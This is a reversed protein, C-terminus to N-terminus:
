DAKVKERMFQLLETPSQKSLIDRFQSRYNQVLSIGEIVVDYVRWDAGKKILRYDLPIQRGDATIINSKVEVQGERLTNEAGFEIKESTYALVRDAYTKELLSGFLSSFEKQQAPTFAKWDKGLTRRSLEDYDFVRNIIERIAAIQDGRAMAKFAPDRLKVLIKQVEVEVTQTATAALAPSAAAWCFVCLLLIGAVKRGMSVEQRSGAFSLNAEKLICFDPEFIFRFFSAALAKTLPGGRTLGQTERGVEKRRVGGRRHV